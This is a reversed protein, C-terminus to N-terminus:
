NARAGGAPRELVFVAHWSRNVARRGFIADVPTSLLTVAAIMAMAVSRPMRRLHPLMWTKFPAPDVGTLAQLELGAQAFLELYV